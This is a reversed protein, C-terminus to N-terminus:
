KNILVKELRLLKGQKDHVRIIYVGNAVKGTEIRTAMSTVQVKKV